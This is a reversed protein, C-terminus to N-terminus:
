QARATSAGAPIQLTRRSPPTPWCLFGSNFIGGGGYGSKNDFNNTITSGTVTLYGTNYIGGGGGNGGSGNSITLGALSAVVNENIEFVTVANNGSVTLVNPEPGDIVEPGVAESLVLSRSLTITQPTSAKFVTPAFEIVSGAPNTNANAQNIAYVLDDSNGSGTGSASLSTSSTSLPPVAQM